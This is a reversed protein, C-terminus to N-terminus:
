STWCPRTSRGITQMQINMQQTNIDGKKRKRAAEVAVENVKTMTKTSNERLWLSQKSLTNNEKLIQNATQIMTVKDLVTTLGANDEESIEYFVGLVALGDPQNLNEVSPSGDDNLYKTNVHVLHIEIPFEKGDLTHESGKSSDSGWHWHLQLFNFRPITLSIYRM